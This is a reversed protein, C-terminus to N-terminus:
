VLESSLAAPLRGFEGEEHWGLLKASPVDTDNATGLSIPALADAIQEAFLESSGGQQQQIDVSFGIPLTRAEGQTKIFLLYSLHNICAGLVVGIILGRKIWPLEGHRRAKSGGHSCSARPERKAESAEAADGDSGAGLSLCHYVLQYSRVGSWGLAVQIPVTSWLHFYSTEIPKGPGQMWGAFIHPLLDMPLTFGTVSEVFGIPLCMLIAWVVAILIQWGPLRSIGMQTSFLAVGLSGTFILVRGVRGFIYVIDWTRAGSSRRNGSPSNEGFGQDSANMHLGSRTRFLLRPDWLRLLSHAMDSAAQRLWQPHWIALHMAAATIAAVSCIYGLASNVALRVPSYPNFALPVASLLNQQLLRQQLQRPELINLDVASDFNHHVLSINYMNGGVDYVNTSVIPLEQAGWLNMHWCIPTLVYLMLTAGVYYHMQAWLPTVLPQLTGMATWDFTLSLIGTGNWGSGLLSM